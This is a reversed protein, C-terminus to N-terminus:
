QVDLRCEWAHGVPCRFMVSVKWATGGRLLPGRVWHARYHTFGFQKGDSRTHFANPHDPCVQTRLWSLPIQLEAQDQNNPAPLWFDLGALQLSRKNDHDITTVAPRPM